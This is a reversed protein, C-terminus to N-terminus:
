TSVEFLSGTTIRKTGCASVAFGTEPTGGLWSTNTHGLGMHGTNMGFDVAGTGLNPVAPAVRQAPADAFSCVRGILAAAFRQNQTTTSNM